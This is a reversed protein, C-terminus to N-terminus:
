SRPIPDAPGIQATTTASSRGVAALGARFSTDCRRSVAANSHWAYFERMEDLWADSCGAAILAALLRACEDRLAEVVKIARDVDPFVIAPSPEERHAIYKDRCRKVTRWLEAFSAESEQAAVLLRERVAEPTFAGATLALVEPRAFLRAYHYDDSRSGFLHCWLQCCMEGFANQTYIWFDVNEPHASVLNFFHGASLCRHAIGEANRVYDELTSAGDCKAGDELKADLLVLVAAQREPSVRSWAGM